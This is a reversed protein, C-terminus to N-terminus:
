GTKGQMTQKHVKYVAQGAGKVTSRGPVQILRVKGHIYLMKDM